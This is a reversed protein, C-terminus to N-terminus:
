LKSMEKPTYDEMSAMAHTKKYLDYLAYMIDVAKGNVVKRMDAEVFSDPKLTGISLVNKKKDEPKAEKKKPIFISVLASFPNVDGESKKGAKEKEEKEKEKKPYNEYDM